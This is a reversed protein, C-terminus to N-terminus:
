NEGVSDVCVWRIRGDSSGEQPSESRDSHHEELGETGTKTVQLSFNGMGGMKFNM